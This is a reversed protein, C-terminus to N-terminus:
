LPRSHGRVRVTHFVNSRLLKRRVCRALTSTFRLLNGREQARRCNWRATPSGSPFRYGLNADLRGKVAIAGKKYVTVCVLEDADYVAWFRTERYREVTIM